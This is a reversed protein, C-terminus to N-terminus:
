KIGHGMLKVGHRGAGHQPIEEWAGQTAALAVQKMKEIDITM